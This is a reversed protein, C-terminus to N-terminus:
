FPSGGRRVHFTTAGAVAELDHAQWEVDSGTGFIQVRSVAKEAVSRAGPSDAGVLLLGRRPVLNVLRRFALAVADFDAYIDAHDFEVNNVVAIDPLYKLFKASKDFFASDYEDGEIVFDRGRGLRYSSGGDGFNRAIGGVLVSPDVGGHTLLWGTLSTTTTKGHTGAIVISRAGWLFHERIAEPLSCYRIKRDLVEELEPNGRSIANGVVVLDLDGTIHDASYGTLTPIRESALFDSMPPYVDQDSGRVDLGKRKLMAALTAMATGCIGILHVKTIPM